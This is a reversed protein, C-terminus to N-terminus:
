RVHPLGLSLLVSETTEEHIARLEEESYDDVELRRQLITRGVHFIVMQGVVAHTRVVTSPEHPDRGLVWGVLETLLTHVKRFVAEYLRNFHPGPVTLERLVLPMFARIEPKGLFTTLIADIVRALMAAQRHPDDGAINRTEGALETVLNLRPTITAVIYDIAGLYLEDKSGFYYKIAAVNVGASDALMRTSVGDYGRQGFLEIATM